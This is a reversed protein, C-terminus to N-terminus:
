DAGPLDKGGAPRQSGQEEYQLVSFKGDSELFAARVKGIDDIGAQRLQADLDERTLYEKRLNRMLVKGAKVLPVRQPETLKHVLPWRYSAWDLSFNWFVLTGVLIFGEAVTDYSGSLANQSADAVIVVFLIDAVGVAGPDRRLVFRFILLLFWYMLTGRLVLELPSENVTLLSALDVDM